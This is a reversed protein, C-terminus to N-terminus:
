AAAFSCLMETQRNETSIDLIIARGLQKIPHTAVNKAFWFVEDIPEDDHWTTVV